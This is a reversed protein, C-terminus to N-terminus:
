PLEWARGPTFPLRFDFRWGAKLSRLEVRVGTADVTFVGYNKRPKRFVIGERAVGSTVIEVIGSDDYVANRHIDGSVVLAGPQGRLLDRLRQFAYPYHEWSEDTLAYHHVTTSSVILRCAAGSARFAAEFWAWQRAGLIADGANSVDKRHFREDLVFIDVSGARTVSYVEGEPTAPPNFHKRLMRRAAERLGPAHDGGHRNNGLFDHDDYTALVRAGRARMDELLARFHPEGLQAAYLRDLEAELAVADEHVDNDLYVNDGLLLLVDPREAQIEGWVPQDPRDQLKCCSTAIIKM